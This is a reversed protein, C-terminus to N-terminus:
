EWGSIIVEPKDDDFVTDAPYIELPEGDIIAIVSKRKVETVLAKSGYLHVLEGRKDRWAGAANIVLRSFDLEKAAALKRKAQDVTTTCLKIPEYM